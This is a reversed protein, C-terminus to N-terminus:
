RSSKIIVVDRKPPMQDPTYRFKIYEIEMNIIYFVMGNTVGICALIILDMLSSDVHMVLIIVAGLCIGALSVLAILSLVAVIRAVMVIVKVFKQVIIDMHDNYMRRIKRVTSEKIPLTIYRTM